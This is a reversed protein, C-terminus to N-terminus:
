RLIRVPLRSSGETVLSARGLPHDSPVTFTWTVWGLQGDKANGADSIGLVTQHLVPKQRVLVLEIDDLPVEIEEDEGSCGFASGGGGDNCGDVFGRGTVTVQEGRHFLALPEEVGQVKLTPGACQANAAPQPYPAVAMGLLIASVLLHRRM